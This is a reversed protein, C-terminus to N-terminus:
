AFCEGDDAQCWEGTEDLMTGQRDVYDALAAYPEAPRFTSGASEEM